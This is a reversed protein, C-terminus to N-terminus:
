PRGATVDDGPNPASTEERMRQLTAADFSNRGRELSKIWRLSVAISSRSEGHDRGWDVFARFDEAAGKL